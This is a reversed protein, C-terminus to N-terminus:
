AFDMVTTMPEMWDVDEPTSDHYLTHFYFFTQEKITLPFFAMIVVGTGYNARSLCNIALEDNIETVRKWVVVQIYTLLNQETVFTISVILFSRMAKVLLVCWFYSGVGTKLLIILGQCSNLSIMLSALSHNKFAPENKFSNWPLFAYGVLM